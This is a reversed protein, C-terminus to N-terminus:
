TSSKADSADSPKTLKGGEKLWDDLDSKYYRIGGRKSYSPGTGQSRMVALTNPSLKLYKAANDTDMRGGPYIEIEIEKINM